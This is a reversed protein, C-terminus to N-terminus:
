IALTKRSFIEVGFDAIHKLLDANDINKIDLVDFKYPLLTEDNLLGAIHNACYETSCNLALDVDSGPKFNGMARSGFIVVSKVCTEKEFIELIARLDGKRFGYKQKLAM